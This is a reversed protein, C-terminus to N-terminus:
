GLRTLDRDQTVRCHLVSALRDVRAVDLPLDLTPRHLTDAPREIFLIEEILLAVHNIRAEQIIAHGRTQVQRHDISHDHFHRIRIMGKPHPAHAFRGDNRGQCRHRVSNRVSYTHAHVSERQRRTADQLSQPLLIPGVARITPLNDHWFYPNGG